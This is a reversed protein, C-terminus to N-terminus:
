SGRKVRSENFWGLVNTASALRHGNFLTELAEANDRMVYALDSRRALNSSATLGTGCLFRRRHTETDGGSDLLPKNQPSM